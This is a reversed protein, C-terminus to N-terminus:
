ALLRARVRERLEPGVQLTEELYADVYYSDSDILALM